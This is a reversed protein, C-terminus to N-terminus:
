IRQLRPYVYSIAYVMFVCIMDFSWLMFNAYVVSLLLGLLTVLPKKTGRPPSNKITKVLGVILLFLFCIFPIFGLLGNEVYQVAYETHLRTEGFIGYAKFNHLGIGSIPHEVFLPWSYYYMLGRDGFLDFVTGTSLSSLRDIDNEMDLFRQGGVTNQLIKSGAFFFLVIGLIFLLISSINRTNLRSYIFIITIILIMGFGMRSGTSLTVYAPVILSLLAIRKIYGLSLRFLITGYGIACYFAVENSNIHETVLRGGEDNIGTFFFVTLLSYIFLSISILKLTTRFNRELMLLTILFFMITILLVYILSWLGNTEILISQKILANIFSWIAVFVMLWVHKRIAVKTVENFFAFFSLLVFKM